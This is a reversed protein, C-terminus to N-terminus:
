HPNGTLTGLDSIVSVFVGDVFEHEWTSTYSLSLTGNAHAYSRTGSVVSLTLTFNRFSHSAIDQLAVVSGSEAAATFDCRKTSFTITGTIDECVPGCDTTTFPDGGNLTGAYTGRGLKGEFTGHIPWSTSAISWESTGTLTTETGAVAAASLLFVVLALATVVLRKM